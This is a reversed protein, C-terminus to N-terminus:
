EEDESDSLGIGLFRKKKPEPQKNVEDIKDDDDAKMDTLEEKIEAVISEKSDVFKLGSFRKDFFSAKLLVKRNLNADCRTNMEKRLNQKFSSIYLPKNEDLVSLPRNNLIVWEVIIHRFQKQKPHDHKYKPKESSPKFYDKIKPASDTSKDCDYM